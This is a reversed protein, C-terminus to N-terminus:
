LTNYDSILYCLHFPISIVACSVVRAIVYALALDECNRNKDIQDLQEPRILQVFDSLYDRHFIAAKTLMITYTGSWYVHQWRLYKIAGTIVDFAHLRPSFGVLSRDNSSWAGLALNLDDCSIILDDDISM